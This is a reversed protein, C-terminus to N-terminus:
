EMTRTRLKSSVIDDKETSTKGVGWGAQGEAWWWPSTTWRMVHCGHWIVEQWTSSSWCIRHWSCSVVTRSLTMRPKISYRIMVLVTLQCCKVLMSDRVLYLTLLFDTWHYFKWKIYLRALCFKNESSLQSNKKQRQVNLFFDVQLFHLITDYKPNM